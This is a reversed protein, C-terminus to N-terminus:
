QGILTKTTAPSQSGGLAGAKVTGGQLGAARQQAMMEATGASTSASASGIAPTPPAAQAPVKPASFLAGM